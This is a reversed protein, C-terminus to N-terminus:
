APYSSLQNVYAALGILVMGLFYFAITRLSVKTAKTAHLLCRHFPQGNRDFGM